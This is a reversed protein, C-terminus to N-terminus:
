KCHNTRNIVAVTGRMKEAKGAMVSMSYLDLNKIASVLNWMGLLSNPICKLTELKEEMWLHSSLCLNFSFSWVLFM